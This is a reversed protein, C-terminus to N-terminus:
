GACARAAATHARSITPNEKHKIGVSVTGLQWRKKKQLSAAPPCIKLNKPKGTGTASM